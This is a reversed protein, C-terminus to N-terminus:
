LVYAVVMWKLTWVSLIAEMQRMGAPVDEAEPPVEAFEVEESKPVQSTQRPRPTRTTAAKKPVPLIADKDVDPGHPVRPPKSTSAFAVQKPIPLIVDEGIGLAQPAQPVQPPNSTNVTAVQMPVAQTTVAPIPVPLIADEDIVIASDNRDTAM